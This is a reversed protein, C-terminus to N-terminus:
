KLLTMKNSSTFNGNTLTYFYIGSPLGSADFYVEYNGAPMDKNILTKVERGLMDYVKLSTQGSVPLSFKINTVPNFPNPYNQSLSFQQPIDVVVHIINSYEFTGDFDIQKLRYSYKGTVVQEDTFSYASINTTSGNGKVFGLIIWNKEEEPNGAREIEFGRNNTETATEWNLTVVDNEVSAKFSTLEVPVPFFSIAQLTNLIGWGYERDPNNARSATNRMADRVQMPTLSPNHSLILAAVGAALPCSFSTGSATSYNTNSYTSAVVVGSGMAMVDPKIRGDVTNGVSSFSVRTGSSGVAGVAIVSDGDAPAGLTNQTSHFGENGASNVVVIGRAVALDAAITIRCTNGDMSQWTYSQFPADFSIYGLSTSTVDVGISDAWEVAAIWNDEEIPTESDTNETKALIYDAAFAPGILKGEKFGGITSLTQTGHTGTGMDASDGVGPDNNVFDWAAIINMSQFSEHSLRNFGADMVAVTVGQGTIGLNHVAPVGIQELQTYSNGYNYSYIGAPQEIFLSETKNEDVPEKYDKKLQYVIDIQNVFNLSAIQSLVEKSVYASVGNFWKSKQKVSIGINELENLYFENVPVDAYNLLNSKGLVKSRRKLSKESVVSNPSSIYEHVNNGKDTFFIWCLIKENAQTTTIESKLQESYKEYPAQGMLIGSALVILLMTLQKM